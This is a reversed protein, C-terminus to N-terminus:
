SARELRLTSRGGGTYISLLADVSAFRTQGGLGSGAYEVTLPGVTERTVEGSAQDTYLTDTTARLALECCANQVRKVPWDVLDRPWSLAQTSTLPEGQFRYRTDIYQTARRLASERVDPLTEAWAANGMALHYADAFALTVYSDADARGTGDEAILAM